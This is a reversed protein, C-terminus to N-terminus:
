PRTVSSLFPHSTLPRGTAAEVLADWRVLAGHRFIRDRLFGGAATRGVMGGCELRIANVLEAALLEGLLYNHYYVPASALHIKAAWDSRSRGTPRPLGQFREVLDWWLLDLDSEPDAYLEREFHAMVLCWRAFVLKQTADNTRLESSVARVSAEDSGAIGRLWEPNRPLAGTLLAVAETVFIHTPRHLLYPLSPSISVDYAAHGCEHLMVEVWRSGPVINCLLRVDQGSRDVDLCFAHESKASRPYLDSSAVVRELDFGWQRFTELALQVADKGRFFPDLDVASDAPLSQFFPDSYHWPEIRSVGFRSRLDDDLERKWSFFPVETAVEVEDLTAFLWEESLEQLSLSMRYFDAYGLDHAARNRLRALERVRPAAKTAVERSAEWAARREESDDSSRLVREIDAAALAEGHVIPRFGAFLSEVEASLAVVDGRLDDDMQNGTLSLRLIELQRLLVPDHVGEELATQVASLAERDGKIRRLELEAEARRRESAPGAEVQADWYALHFATEATAIAGELQEVLRHAALRM